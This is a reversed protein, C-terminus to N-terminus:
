ERILVSKAGELDEVIEETGERTDECGKLFDVVLEDEVAENGAEDEVGNESQLHHVVPIASGAFETSRRVLQVLRSSFLSDGHSGTSLRFAFARASASSTLNPYDNYVLYRKREGRAFLRGCIYKYIPRIQPASSRIVKGVL